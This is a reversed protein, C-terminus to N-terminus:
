PNAAVDGRATNARVTRLSLRRIGRRIELVHFNVLLATQLGALRLYTLTQAMHLSSIKEVAKLEVIVRRDVVLDAVYARSVEISRYRVPIPVQREFPVSRHRLEEAFCSEYAEELLCPGLARHVTVLASMVKGSLNWNEDM